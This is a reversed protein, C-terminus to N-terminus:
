MIVNLSWPLHSDDTVSCYSGDFLPSPDHRCGLSFTSFRGNLAEMGDFVRRKQRECVSEKLVGCTQMMILNSRDEM